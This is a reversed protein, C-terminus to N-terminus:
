RRRLKPRRTKIAAELVQYLHAANSQWDGHAGISAVEAPEYERETARCLADALASPDRVAVLEGLTDSHVLDPIGGVDTAVVRRGCAYAELVVNPTGENWSPLTLVDCAALWTSVEEFPVAGVLKMQPGIRHAYEECVSRASGEGVAILMSHPQRASVQEFAVSLDLIGKTELLNGVYLIIKRGRPLGLKARAQARDRVHFLGSDIGNYVVAVREPDVGLQCARRGLQRSVAVVRAARPLLFRLYPQAGALEPLVNADSGHLKVVAPVGLLDALAVSACGDPYAWASFIVDIKGRYRLVRTLLSAAYLPGSLGLMRPIYLVRPHEVWLGRYQEARPVRHMRGSYTWRSLLRSGPFWPITAMIDLECLEGLATLQQLNYPALLPRQRNPFLNTIALVRM